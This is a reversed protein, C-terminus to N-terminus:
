EKYPFSVIMKDAIGDNDEDHYTYNDVNVSSGNARQAVWGTLKNDKYYCTTHEDTQRTNNSLSALNKRAADMKFHNGIHKKKYYFVTEADDIKGDGNYDTFIDSINEGQSGTSNFFVRKMIGYEPNSYVSGNSYYSTGNVVTPREFLSKKILEDEKAQISRNKMSLAAQEYSPAIKISETM